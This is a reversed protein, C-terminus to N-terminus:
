PNLCEGIGDQTANGPPPRLAEIEAVMEAGFVRDIEALGFEYGRAFVVGEGYVYDFYLFFKGGEPTEHSTRDWMPDDVEDFGAYHWGQVTFPTDSEIKFEAVRPDRSIVKLKANM